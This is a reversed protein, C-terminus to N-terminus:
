QFWVSPAMGITRAEAATRYVTFPKGTIGSTRETILSSPDGWDAITNEPGAARMEEKTSIPLNRLDEVMRIDDPSIGASRFRSRYYPVHEYANRIVARLKRERLAELEQPPLKRNRFMRRLELVEHIMAM